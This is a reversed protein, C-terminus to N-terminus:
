RVLESVPVALAESILLLDAFRPDRTGREYRQVSRRDVGAAEALQDQSLGAARCRCGGSETPPPPQECTAGGAFVGHDDPPIKPAASAYRSHEWPTPM